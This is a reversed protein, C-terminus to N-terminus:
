ATEGYFGERYSLEFVLHGLIREAEGRSRPSIDTRDLYESYDTYREELTHQQWQSFEGVQQSDSYVSPFHGEKRGGSSFESM